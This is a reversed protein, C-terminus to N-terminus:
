LTFKALVEDLSYSLNNLKECAMVIEQLGAAQEEASASVQETTAANEEAVAAVNSITLLVQNKQNQINRLADTVKNVNEQLLSISSEIRNFGESTSEVNEGTKENLEFSYNIRTQLTIISSHIDEIVKSIEQTAKASQEALKRIEEAVVAFGKGSEGARAAEISANLALLNTQETIAMITNTISSIENSKSVLNESMELAVKNASNNEKYTKKLEAISSLGTETNEKVDKTANLMEASVLIANEVEKGLDESLTSGESLSSAQQTSGSAIQQVARAVEEGAISSNQAISFLLESSEEISKSTNKINKLMIVVNDIMSSVSDSILAIEKNSHKHTKPKQSFDGNRINELVLVLERMPVLLRRGFIIGMTIILLLSVFIIIFSFELSRWLRGTVEAYPILGIITTGTNTNTDKFGIYKENGIKLSIERNDNEAIEKLWIIDDKNKGLMTNDSHGIINYNKDVAILYGNEGIKIEQLLNSLKALTVDVGVVGVIKGGDDKVAKSFTIVYDSYEGSSKYPESVVVQGDKEVALKYWDRSTPDYGDPLQQTPSVIFDKQNNGMYVAIVNDSSAFRDLTSKLLSSDSDNSFGVANHDEGLLNVSNISTSYINDVMDSMRYVNGLIIENLDSKLYVEMSWLNVLAVLMFPLFASTLLLMIIEKKLSPRRKERGKTM